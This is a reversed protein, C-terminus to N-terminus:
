TLLGYAEGQIESRSLVEEGEKSAEFCSSGGLEASASASAIAITIAIASVSSRLNMRSEGEEEGESNGEGPRPRSNIFALLRATRRPLPRHSLFPSPFFSSLALSFALSLAFALALVLVLYLALALALTLVTSADGEGEGEPGRRARVASWARERAREEDKGQVMIDEVHAGSAAAPLEPRCVSRFRVASRAACTPSDHGVSDTMLSGDGVAARPVETARRSM